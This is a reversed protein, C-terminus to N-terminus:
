APNSVAKYLINCSLILDDATIGAGWGLVMFRYIRDICSM